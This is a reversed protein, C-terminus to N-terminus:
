ERLEDKLEGRERVGLRVVLTAAARRSERRSERRPLLTLDSVLLMMDVAPLGTKAAPSFFLAM